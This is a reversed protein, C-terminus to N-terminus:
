HDPPPWHLMHQSFLLTPLQNQSHVNFFVSWFKLFLPCLHHPHYSFTVSTSTPLTHAHSPGTLVPSLFDSSTPGCPVSYLEFAYPVSAAQEINKGKLKNGNNPSTCELPGHTSTKPTPTMSFLRKTTLATDKFVM